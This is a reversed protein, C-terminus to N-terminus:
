CCAEDRAARVVRFDARAEDTFLTILAPYTESVPRDMMGEEETRLTLLTATLEREEESDPSLGMDAGARQMWRALTTAASEASRQWDDCEDSGPLYVPPDLARARDYARCPSTCGIARMMVHRRM